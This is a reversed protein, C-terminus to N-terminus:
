EARLATTPNVRTARRAPAWAAALAAAVFAAPAVTFTAADFAALDVFVSGLIRGVAVGLLLGVAVGGLSIALSEGLIMRRVAAPEAGVAIRIGIERTRRVVAHAMVAYLGVVAVVMAALGFGVFLVSARGLAWFEISSDVHDTFSRVAFLPLDPATERVTRRVVDALAPSAAAPRVHFYTPGVAGRALPVFVGGPLEPEFLVWHTPAVIGVVVYATRDGTRSAFQVREGLANGAPWLRRALVDDLIAVPPATADYSESESFTRGALLRVGMADFYGRSVANWPSDFARGEEPTSPKAGDPLDPGARRVDRSLHLFGMPVVPAVGVAAVGPLAALRREVTGLVEIAREPSYGALGGDVEALVTAAADYGLDVAMATHAMRLFLGAAILLALSLAVQAAVLPHRPLWRRRRPPAEEGAHGKLDDMVDAGSQRLAPALGFWLTALLSFGLTAALVIPSRTGDLALTVPLVGAFTNQLATVSWAALPAGIAAGALALLFSEILLQRVLRARTGGLAMRIALEKRRARGRALLMAALNLCVTLLVAATLGLMLAGLLGLAGEDTPSTSTGFRPLAALTLRADRYEAPMATALAAAASELSAEATALSLGPALRGVLFLQYADARDLRAPTTSDFDNALTHFVGLPFFMEPGFVSMTGTFGRPTVGVVTYPRENVRVTSGVLAPDFGGRQWFAWTVVVVPVDQGPRSEDETFGRGIAVPAGLVDFYNRSVLVGFTRRSAGDEGVGVLAPMHALVGSFGDAAALQQYAPYSFARYSDPDTTRSSYFQVVRDPDAIARGAFGIAYVLSFMGANLGIGLALVAVAAGAFGPTKGLHRLAYRVDGLWSGM